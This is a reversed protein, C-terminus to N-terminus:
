QNIFYWEFVKYFETIFIIIFIDHPYIKNHFIKGTHLFLEIKVNICLIICIFTYILGIDKPTLEVKKNQESYEIFKNYLDDIEKLINPDMNILVLM